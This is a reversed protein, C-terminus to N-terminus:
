FNSKPVCSQELIVKTEISKLALYLFISIGVLPLYILYQLDLEKEFLRTVKIKNLNPSIWVAFVFSVQWKQNTIYLHTKGKIIMDHLYFFINSSPITLLVPFKRIFNLCGIEKYLNCWIFIVWYKNLEVKKSREM